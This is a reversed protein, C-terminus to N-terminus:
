NEYFNIDIDKGRKANPADLEKIPYKKNNPKNEYKIYYDRIFTMELCHSSDNIPVLNNAHIHILKFKKLNKLFNIILENKEIVNHFEIAIGIINDFKEIDKYFSFEGGEIDSKLFIKKGRHKQM